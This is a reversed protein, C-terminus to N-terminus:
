QPLEFSALQTLLDPNPVEFLMWFTFDDIIEIGAYGKIRERAWPDLASAVIKSTYPEGNLMTREPDLHFTWQVGNESVEWAIAVEPQPEGNVLSILTAPKLELDIGDEQARTQVDDLWLNLNPDLETL